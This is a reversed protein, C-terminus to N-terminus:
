ARGALAEELVEAIYEAFQPMSSACSREPCASVVEGNLDVYARKVGLGRYFVLSNLDPLADVVGKQLVPWSGDEIRLTVINHVPMAEDYDAVSDTLKPDDLKLDFFQALRWRDSMHILRGAGYGGKPLPVAFVDGVEASIAHRSERLLQQRGSGPM